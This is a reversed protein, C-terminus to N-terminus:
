QSSGANIKVDADVSFIPVIKKKDYCKLVDSSPSDAFKESIDVFGVLANEVSRFRLQHREQNVSRTM